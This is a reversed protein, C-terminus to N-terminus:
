LKGNKLDKGNFKYHLPHNSILIEDVGSRGTTKGSVSRRVSPIILYYFGSYWERVRKTNVNSVLVEHESKISEVFAALYAQDVDSFGEKQYSKFSQVKGNKATSSPASAYPPDLYIVKKDPSLRIADLIQKDYPATRQIKFRNRKDPLKSSLLSQMKVLAEFDFTFGPSKKGFPVNFQNKSNVRFIGNFCTKNLFYTRAAIEAPDLDWFGEKRDWNRIRYFNEASVEFKPSSLLEIMEEVASKKSVTKYLNVLERNLDGIFIQNSTPVSFSLAGGGIFPEILASNKNQINSKIVDLIVRKGGVWKLIPAVGQMEQASTNERYNM